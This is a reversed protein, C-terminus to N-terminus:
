TGRDGPQVIVLIALTLLALVRPLIHANHRSATSTQDSNSGNQPVRVQREGNGVVSGVRFHQREELVYTKTIQNQNSALSSSQNQLKRGDGNWQGFVVVVVDVRVLDCFLNSATGRNDQGGVRTVRGAVDNGVWLKSADLIDATATGGQNQVLEVASVVVGGVTISRGQTTGLVDHVDVLVTHM